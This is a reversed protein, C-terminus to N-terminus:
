NIFRGSICEDFSDLQVVIIGVIAAVVKGTDESKDPLTANVKKGQYAKDGSEKPIADKALTIIQIDEVEEEQFRIWGNHGDQLSGTQVELCGKSFRIYAATFQPVFLGEPGNSAIQVNVMDGIKPIQCALDM